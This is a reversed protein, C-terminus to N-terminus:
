EQLRQKGTRSEEPIRVVLSNNIQTRCALRYGKSIEGSTLIEEEITTIPSVSGMKEVIVKCKGCTGKGGCISTLDVGALKASELLNSGAEIKVRKGEPQFVVESILPM